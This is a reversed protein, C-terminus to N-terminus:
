CAVVIPNDLAWVALCLLAFEVVAFAAFYHARDPDRQVQLLIFPLVLLPVSLLFPYDLILRTLWPLDVGFSAYVAALGPPLILGAGALLVGNGIAAALSLSFGGRWGRRRQWLRFAGWAVAVLAGAMAALAPVITLLGAEAQPKPGCVVAVDGLALAAHPWLGAATWALGSCVHLM